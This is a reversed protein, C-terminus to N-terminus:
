SKVVWWPENQWVGHVKCVGRESDGDYIPHGYSYACYDSSIRGCTPCNNAM